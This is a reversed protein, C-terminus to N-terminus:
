WSLLSRMSNASLPLRSESDVFFSCFFDVDAELRILLSTSRRAVLNEDESLSLLLCLLVIFEVMSTSLTRFLVAQVVDAASTVIADDRYKLRKSIVDFRLATSDGSFRRRRLQLPQRSFDSDDRILQTPRKSREDVFTMDELNCRNRCDAKSRRAAM